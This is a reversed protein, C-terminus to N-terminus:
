LVEGGLLGRRITQMKYSFIAMEIDTPHFKQPENYISLYSTKDLEATKQQLWKHFKEYELINSDSTAIYGRSTTTFSTVRTENSFAAVLRDIIGYRHTIPDLFRLIASAVAISPGTQPTKGLSQLLQIAYCVDDPMTNLHKRVAELTDEVVQDSLSSILQIHNPSGSTKWDVIFLLVQKPRLPGRASVNEKVLREICFIREESFRRGSNVPWEYHERWHKFDFSPAM